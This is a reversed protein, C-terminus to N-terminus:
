GIRGGCWRVSNLEFAGVWWSTGALLMRRTTEFVESDVNTEWGEAERGEEGM